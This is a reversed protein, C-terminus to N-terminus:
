SPFLPALYHRSVWQGVDLQAQSLYLPPEVAGSIPRTADYRPTDSVEVVIGQLTKPGFPVLVAQGPRVDLGPPLEYSFAGAPRGGFASNVSVEAYPL